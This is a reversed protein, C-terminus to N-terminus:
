NVKKLAKDSKLPLAELALWPKEIIVQFSCLIFIELNSLM